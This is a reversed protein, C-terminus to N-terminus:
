DDCQEESLLALVGTQRNFAEIQEDWLDAQAFTEAWFDPDWLRELEDASRQQQEVWTYYKLNHIRKRDYYSLELVHDYTIGQTYQYYDRVANETTYPGFEQELEQLRSGYLEMSDTFITFVVDQDTLEYYKAM